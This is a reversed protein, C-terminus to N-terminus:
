RRKAVREEGCIAVSCERVDFPLTPSEQASKDTETEVSYEM